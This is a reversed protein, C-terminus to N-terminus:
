HIVFCKWCTSVQGWWLPDENPGNGSQFHPLKRWVQTIRSFHLLCVNFRTVPNFVYRYRLLYAILYRWLHFRRRHIRWQVQLHVRRFNRFASFISWSRTIKYKRIYTHIYTHIYIPIYLRIHNYMYMCIHTQPYTHKYTYISANIYTTIYIHIHKGVHGNWLYNTNATLFIASSCFHTSLVKRRPHGSSNDLFRAFHLGLCKKDFNICLRLLRLILGL